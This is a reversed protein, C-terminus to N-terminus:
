FAFDINKMDALPFEKYIEPTKGIVQNVFTKQDELLAGSEHIQHDMMDVTTLSGYGNAVLGESIARASRGYNTGVELCVRPKIARVLGTLVQAFGEDISWLRLPLDVGLAPFTPCIEWERGTGDKRGVVAKSRIQVNSGEAVPEEIEVESWVKLNQHKSKETSDRNEGSAYEDVLALEEETYVGNDPM